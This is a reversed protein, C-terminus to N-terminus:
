LCQVSLLHFNTLPLPESCILIQYSLIKNIMNSRTICDILSCKYKYVLWFVKQYYNAELYDTYSTGNTLDTKEAKM